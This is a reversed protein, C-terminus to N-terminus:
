GTFNCDAFSLNGGSFFFVIKFNINYLCAEYSTQEQFPLDFPKSITVQPPFSLVPLRGASIFKGLIGMM